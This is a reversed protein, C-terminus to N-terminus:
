NVMKSLGIHGKKRNSYHFLYPKKALSEHVQCKERVRSKTISHKWKAQKHTYFSKLSFNGSIRNLTRSTFVARNTSINISNRRNNLQSSTWTFCKRNLTLIVAWGAWLAIRTLISLESIGTILTFKRTNSIRLTRSSFTCISYAVPDVQGM